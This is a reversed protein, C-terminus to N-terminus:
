VVDHLLITLRPRCTTCIRLLSDVSLHEYRATPSLSILVSCAPLHRHESQLTSPAAARRASVKINAVKFLMYKGELALFSALQLFVGGWFKELMVSSQQLGSGAPLASTRQPKGVTTKTPLLQYKPVNWMFRILVYTVHKCPFKHSRNSQFTPFFALM